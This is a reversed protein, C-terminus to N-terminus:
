NFIYKESRCFLSVADIWGEDGEEGNKGKKRVVRGQAGDKEIDFLVVSGDDAARNVEQILLTGDGVWAVEMVISDNKLQRDPWDLEFTAEAASLGSVQYQQLDFVRVSVTPNAYGPKPYKMVVEKTYPVVTSANSTPNYIPFTYEEVLTEDLALFAVKKSDPSWWLAYDSGFVEEEYVWDPVGHFLSANGSTTVRIPHTSPEYPGPLIYLDNNTVFAISEGTPSWTAYATSPPYTPAIIPHALKARIDYVYYNGFSSHRWQKQYDTKLLMFNMDASLKWESWGRIKRGSSPDRVDQTDVLITTSNNKLDVLKIHGNEQISFVGDGAEPVWHVSKKSVGFTGNFIHDMTFHQGGPRHNYVSPHNYTGAAFIGICASYFYALGM